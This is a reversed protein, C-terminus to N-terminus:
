RATPKKLENIDRRLSGLQNRVRADPPPTAEFARLLRDAEDLRRQAILVGVLTVGRAADKPRYGVARRAAREAEDLRGAALLARAHTDLM